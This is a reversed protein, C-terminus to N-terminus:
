KGALVDALMQVVVILTLLGVVIRGLHRFAGAAPQDDSMPSRMSGAPFGQVPRAQLETWRDLYVM